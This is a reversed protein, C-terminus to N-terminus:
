REHTVARPRLQGGIDVERLLEGIEAVYMLGFLHGRGSSVGEVQMRLCEGGELSAPM